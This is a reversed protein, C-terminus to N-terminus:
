SLTSTKLDEQQQQQCDSLVTEDTLSRVSLQCTIGGGCIFVGDGGGSYNDLIFQIM